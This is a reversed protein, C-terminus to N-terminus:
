KIKMSENVKLLLKSKNNSVCKRKYAIMIDNACPYLCVRQNYWPITQILYDNTKTLYKIYVQSKEVSYTM